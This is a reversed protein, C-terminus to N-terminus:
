VADPLPVQKPLKLAARTANLTILTWTRFAGENAAAKRADVMWATAQWFDSRLQDHLSLAHRQERLLLAEDLNDRCRTMEGLLGWATGLHTHDTISLTSRRQLHLGRRRAFHVQIM